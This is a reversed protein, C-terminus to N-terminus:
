STGLHEYAGWCGKSQEWSAYGREARMTRVFRMYDDIDHMDRGEEAIWDRHYVLLVQLAGSASSAPNKVLRGDAEWHQIVHPDGTSECGAIVELLPDYGIHERMKARIYPDQDAYAVPLPSPEGAALSGPLASAILGVLALPTLTRMPLTTGKTRLPYATCRGPPFFLLTKARSGFVASPPM